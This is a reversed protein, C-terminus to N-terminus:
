YKKMNGQTVNGAGTITTLKIMKYYETLIWIVTYLENSAIRWEGIVEVKDPEGVEWIGEMNKGLPSVLNYM